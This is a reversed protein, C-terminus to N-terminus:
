VAVALKAAPIDKAFVHAVVEYGRNKLANYHPENDLRCIGGLPLFDVGKEAAIKAVTAELWRAIQGLALRGARTKKAWLEDVIYGHGTERLLAWAQM